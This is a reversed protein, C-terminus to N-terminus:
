ISMARLKENREILALAAGGSRWTDERSTVRCTEDTAEAPIAADTWAMVERPLVPVLPAMELLAARRSANTQATIWLLCVREWGDLLWDCRAAQVLVGGPAAIWRKLSALPDTLATRTNELVLAGSGCAMRMAATVLGGLGGIDNGIDNGPDAALWRSLGICTDELRAILRPIRAERDEPAAGVSAFANGMAALDRALHAATRGLSPAIRHLVNSARRDLDPTRAALSAPQLGGPEVQEILAVMLRFHTLLRQQHDSALAAEAAAVAQRGAHGELAVDLAAERIGAPDIASLRSFRRFLMTDHVTPNFIAQVGPWHLIYVGRGGSPNPVVLEIDTQRSERVRAGALLPTTFPAAVGRSRFTVPHHSEILPLAPQPM